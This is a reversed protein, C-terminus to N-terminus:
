ELWSYALHLPTKRRSRALSSSSVPIFLSHLASSLLQRRPFPPIGSLSSGYELERNPSPRCDEEKLWSRWICRSHCLLRRLHLWADLFAFANRQHQHHEISATAPTLHVFSLYTISVNRSYSLDFLHSLRRQRGVGKGNKVVASGSEDRNFSM